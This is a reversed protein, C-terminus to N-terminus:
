FPVFRLIRIALVSAVPVMSGLVPAKVATPGTGDLEPQGGSEVQVFVVVPAKLMPCVGIVKVPVPRMSM